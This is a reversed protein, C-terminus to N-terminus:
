EMLPLKKTSRGKAKNLIKIIANAEIRSGGKGVISIERRIDSNCSEGGKVILLRMYPNKLLSMGHKRAQIEAWFIGRVVIDRIKCEANVAAILPWTEALVERNRKYLKWVTMLCSVNKVGEFPSPKHGTSAILENLGIACKDGGVLLAKFRDFTAVGTKESNIGVFGLAESKVSNDLDYVMCPLSRIDSRKDAAQKRTAGDIVFWQDDRIAVTLTGCKVWSWSAAYKNIKGQSWKSRQYDMDIYLDGKEIEMFEGPKDILEWKYKKIKDMQGRGQPNLAVEQNIRM